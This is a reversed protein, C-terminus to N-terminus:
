LTNIKLSKALVYADEREGLQPDLPYYQKRQGILLFGVQAYLQLAITNSPRVELIIRQCHSQRAINEISAMLRTGIGRRRVAPNVTINLLHLEDVAPFLIFYALLEKSTDSEICYAWHGAALSDTFNGRTWPHLHSELELTLVRELDDKQMARFALNAM